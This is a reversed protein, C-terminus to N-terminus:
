DSSREQWDYYKARAVPDKMVKEYQDPNDKLKAFDITESEKGGGQSGAEVSGKKVEKQLPKVDPFFENKIEELNKLHLFDKSFAVKKFVEIKNALEPYKAAISKNFDLEFADLNAKNMKELVIPKVREEAVRTAETTAQATIMNALKTVVAVTLGAEAAFDELTQNTLEPSADKQRLEKLENKLDLYKKLPVMEKAKEEVVEEEGQPRYKSEATDDAPPTETEEEVTEEETTADTESNTGEENEFENDFEQDQPGM